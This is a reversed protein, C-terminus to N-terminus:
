IFHLIFPPLRSSNIRLPSKKEIGEKILWCFFAGHRVRGEAFLYRVRGEADLRFSRWTQHFYIHPPTNNGTKYLSVGRFHRINLYITVYHARDEWWFILETRKNERKYQLKVFGWHPSMFLLTAYAVRSNTAPGSRQSCNKGNQLCHLNRCRNQSQNPNNVYRM